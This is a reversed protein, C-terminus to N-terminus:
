IKDSISRVKKLLNVQSWKKSSEGEVSVTGGVKVLKFSANIVQSIQNINNCRFRLSSHSSRRKYSGWLNDLGVSLWCINLPRSISNYRLNIITLCLISCYEYM